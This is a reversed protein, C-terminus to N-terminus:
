GRIKEQVYRNGGIERSRDAIRRGARRGSFVWRQQIIYSIFFLSTDAIMKGAVSPMLLSLLMALGASAFMQAAFLIGYRLMERGGSARSEFSWYKNMLFNIIGSGIRAAMTALLIVHAGYAYQQFGSMGATGQQLMGGGSLNQGVSVNWKGTLFYLLLAFLLVDCVAGTLSSAVFRLPRKYVLISDRVPRFHSGKNGDEYVTTIPVSVIPVRQSADMLFNMEYEYRDGNTECALERLCSPIGRLGTQTDPCDVGTTLRFVKATIRNGLLSKKPVQEGSFDRTGLVLSGPHLEMAEAVHLIDEPLHQGDADVTIFSVEGYVEEATRMATRLAAGKGRNQEHRIVLCGRSQAEEFLHRYEASSGDDVTLIREFGYAQLDGILRLMKEDPNLAPIIIVQKMLWRRKITMM